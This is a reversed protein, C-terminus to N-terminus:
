SVGNKAVSVARKRAFLGVYFLIGMAAFSVLAYQPDLESVTFVAPSPLVSGVYNAFLFVFLNIATHAGIALELRNDRLTVLALLLGVGFYYAPLLFLDTQVEPNALHLVMFLVSSITAAIIPRGTAVGVGQLVYGRFLLEEATTQIPVLVLAFPVFKLFEEADWTFQYRGPFLLAEIVSAAIVLTLFFGFGLGVRKLDIRSHTTILTLFPRQHIFRVAVFLAAILPLSGFLSVGLILVPDVGEFQGTNLNLGTAPNADLMVIASIAVVLLISLALWGFVILLISALYRWWANEGQRAVDVFDKGM